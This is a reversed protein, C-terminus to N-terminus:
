RRPGYMYLIPAFPLLFYANVSAILIFTYAAMAFTSMVMRWLDGLTNDIVDQDRSFRNIIRGLPTTDFFRMPANMISHFAGDHLGISAGNSSMAISLTAMATICVAVVAFGGYIGMYQNTTLGFANSTWAQSVCCVSSALVGLHCV